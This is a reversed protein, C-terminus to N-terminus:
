TKYYDLLTQIIYDINDISSYGINKIKSTDLAFKITQLYQSNDGINFDIQLNTNLLFLEALEKISCYSNDSALNYAEGNNGCILTTLLGNITDVLSCYSHKTEGLTNLVINKNNIVSKAFQSFVRNDNKDVGPGFTQALRITKVPINYQSYYCFCLCELIRKTEPYSSRPNTLDIPFYEDESVLKDDCCVGYVELSSAYIMSEINKNIAIKMINNLGLINDNILDVPNTIFYKSTTESALHIIYDIDYNLENVDQMNGKILTVCKDFNFSNFKDENRALAYIKLNLCYKNNLAALCYILFSGILGTGGTIYFSKNKLENYNSYHEVFRNVEIEVYKNM